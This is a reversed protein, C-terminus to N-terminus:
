EDPATMVWEANIIFEDDDNTKLSGIDYKLVTNRAFLFENERPSISLMPSAIYAGIGKGQPVNIHVTVGRANVDRGKNDVSSSLYAPYEMHGATEMLKNMIEGRTPNAYKDFGLMRMDAQRTVKIPHYLEYKNIASDIKDIDEREYKDMNKYSKKYLSNNINTYGDEDTYYSIAYTEDSSLSNKWNVFNSNDENSLFQMAKAYADKGSGFTAPKMKTLPHGSIQSRRLREFAEEPTEGEYMPIHVGKATFWGVPENGKFDKPM